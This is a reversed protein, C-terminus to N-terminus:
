IQDAAFGQPDSPLLDALVKEAQLVKQSYQTVIMPRAEEIADANADALGIISRIVKKSPSDDVLGLDVKAQMPTYGSKELAKDEIFELIELPTKGLQKEYRIAIDYFRQDTLPFVGDQELRPEIIGDFTKAGKRVAQKTENMVTAVDKIAKERSLGRGEAQKVLRGLCVSKSMWTAAEIECIASYTAAVSEVDKGLSENLASVALIFSAKNLEDIFKAM